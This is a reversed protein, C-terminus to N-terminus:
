EGLYAKIVRPDNYVKEPSDEIIKTGFDLVLVRSSIDMVVDMDHEVLVIPIHKLESVDIIFRAMDSKEDANMGGMPEDMLLIEPELALARAFEVRKRLGYSLNSVLEHRTEEIELFDIIEEVRQRNKIEEKKGPGFYVLGSLIGRKMHIHRGAMINEVSTLGDYLEINQFTRAIGCEAIKHPSLKTLEYNKFKISGESPKYFGNFCNLLSTKGAGNPGIISYIEGKKVNFSVNKLAHIGGFNLSVSEIELISKGSM